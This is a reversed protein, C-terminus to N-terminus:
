DKFKDFQSSLLFWAGEGGLFNDPDMFKYWFIGQDQLAM